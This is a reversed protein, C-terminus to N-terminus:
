TSEGRAIAAARPDSADLLRLAQNLRKTAGPVHAVAERAPALSGPAVAELAKLLEAAQKRDKQAKIAFAPGRESAVILKHLAFRAPDPLPVPIARRGILLGRAPTGGLLYDLFRLPAAALNLDPFFVPATAGRRQVTVFDLKVQTRRSLVSTSPQRPDLGPVPAYSQDLKKLEEPVDIALERDFPIALAVSDARGLDLDLTATTAQEWRVGLMNGLAVFAHSGVVFVGKRFLGAAALHEFVRAHAPQHAMGGAAVFARAAADLATRTERSEARVEELRAVLARTPQDDPGLYISQPSSAAVRGTWYWYARGKVDRKAPKGSAAPGLTTALDAFALEQLQSYLTTILPSQVDM